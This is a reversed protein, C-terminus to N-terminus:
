NVKHCKLQKNCQSKTTTVDNVAEIMKSPQLKKTNKTNATPIPM